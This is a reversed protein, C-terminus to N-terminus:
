KIDKKNVLGMNVGWFLSYKEYASDYNQYTAVGDSKDGADMLQMSELLLQESIQRNKDSKKVIRDMLEGRVGSVMKFLDSNKDSLIDEIFLLNMLGITLDQDSSLDLRNTKKAMDATEVMHKLKDTKM